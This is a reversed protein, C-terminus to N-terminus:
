VEGGPKIFYRQGRFKGSREQELKYGHFRLCRGVERGDVPKIQTKTHGLAHILVDTANIKGPRSEFWPLEEDLEHKRERPRPDAIWQEILPDRPGQEYSKKQEAEALFRFEPTDLWWPEGQKFRSAAEAWLQDRNARIDDINIFGCAVPWFRRNGSDDTLPTSDNSTAAFVNRRPVTESRRGYPPRYIDQRAVLFAKVRELDARRVRDLESLEVIWRGCLEIRSDKDGLASLHDTFWSDGALVRLATSKQSGQPGLLLLTHDCQCGPQYARAVAGLLWRAGVLTTYASDIAGLCRYLWCDIRPTGDWVLSDLYETLPNFVRDRAVTEVAEAVIRSPVLIGARNLWECTRLDDVEEWFGSPKGWPTERLTATRRSFEDYGLVDVWEPASRLAISANALCRLPDGAKSKLLRDRWSPAELVKRITMAGYTEAGRMEDWKRRMLGSDRFAEDIRSADGGYKKALVRVLRFDAASHDSFGAEALAGAMLLDFIQEDSLRQAVRASRAPVKKPDLTGLNGHFDAPLDRIESKRVSNGTVTFYRHSDYVEVRGARRPGPPLSGRTWVHLGKGSPSLETFSDLRDIVEQAWPEVAGTEPHRVKDLDVGVYPPEIFCGIGNYGGRIFAGRVAEFSNWTTEDNPKAEHGSVQFPVKAVKGDRPVERWLCWRPL